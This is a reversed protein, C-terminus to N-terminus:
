NRYGYLKITGGSLTGSTPTITFTTYSLGLNHYGNASGGVSGASVGVYSGSFWTEDGLFPRHIDMVLSNGASKHSGAQWYALNNGATGGTAGTTYFAYVISGYYGTNSAGLTFRLDGDASCTGGSYVIKYSDYDASFASSVTVSAVANGVTQTKLLWLGVANMEAATLIQGANFTPYTM